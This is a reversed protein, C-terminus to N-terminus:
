FMFWYVVAWVAVFFLGVYVENLHSRLDKKVFARYLIWGLFLALLIPLVAPYLM